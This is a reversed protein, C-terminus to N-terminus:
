MKHGVSGAQAQSAAPLDGGWEQDSQKVLVSSIFIPLVFTISYRGVEGSNVVMSLQNGSEKDVEPKLLRMTPRVFETEEVVGALLSMSEEEEEEVVNIQAEPQMQTQHITDENPRVAIRKRRPPPPPPLAARRELMDLTDDMRTEEAVEQSGVVFSDEEYDEVLEEARVPQSFLDDTIPALRRKLREEPSRVSRLYMATSTKNCMPSTDDNVFSQEYGEEAEDVEDGSGEPGSLEAELDLFQNKRPKKTAGKKISMLSSNEMHNSIDRLCDGQGTHTQNKLPSDDDSSSLVVRKRKPMLMPTTKSTNVEPRALLSISADESSSSAVRSRKRKGVLVPSSMEHGKGNRLMSGTAPSDDVDDAPNLSDRFDSTRGPQEAQSIEEIAKVSLCEDVHNNMEEEAVSKGCIPCNQKEAPPREIESKEKVNVGLCKDKDVQKNMEEEEFDDSSSLHFDEKVNGSLKTSSKNELRDPFETNGSNEEEIDKVVPKVETNSIERPHNKEVFSVRCDKNSRSEDFMSSLKKRAGSLSRQVKEAEGRKEKEGKEMKGEDSKGPPHLLGVLQSASYFSTALPHKKEEEEKAMLEDFSDDDGFMDESDKMQERFMDEPDRIEDTVKSADEKPEGDCLQKLKSPTRVLSVSSHNQRQPSKALSRRRPSLVKLTTRRQEKEAQPDPTSAKLLMLRRTLPTLM